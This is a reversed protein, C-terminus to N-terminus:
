VMAEAQDGVAGVGGQQAVLERAGGDDGADAAVGGEVVQGRRAGAATTTGAGLALAQGRREAHSGGEGVGVPCRKLDAEAALHDLALEPGASDYSVARERGWKSTMTRSGEPWWRSSKKMVGSGVM